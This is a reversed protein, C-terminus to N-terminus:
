TAERPSYEAVNQPRLTPSLYHPAVGMIMSCDQEIAFPQDHKYTRGVYVGFLAKVLDHHVLMREEEPMRWAYIRYSSPGLTAAAEVSKTWKIIGTGALSGIGKPNEHRLIDLIQAPERDTVDEILKGVPPQGPKQRLNTLGGGDTAMYRMEGKKFGEDVDDLTGTGVHHLQAVRLPVSAAFQEDGAIKDLVRSGDAHMPMVVLVAKRKVSQIVPSTETPLCVGSLPAVSAPLERLPSSIVEEYKTYENDTFGVKGAVIGENALQQKASACKLILDAPLLKVYAKLEPTVEVGSHHDM